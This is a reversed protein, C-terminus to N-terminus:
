NIAAGGINNLTKYCRHDALLKMRFEIFSKVTVTNNHAGYWNLAEALANKGEAETAYTEPCRFRENFEGETLDTLPKEPKTLPPSLKIAEPKLQQNLREPEEGAYFLYLRYGSAQVSSATLRLGIPLTTHAVFEPSMDKDLYDNPMLVRRVLTRDNSDTLTLELLPYNQTTSGRNTVSATLILAGPNASDPHLDSADIGIFEADERPNKARSKKKNAETSFMGDPLRLASLKWSLIGERNFVLAVPDGTDEKGKVTVVFRDFSEYSMTTDTEPASQTPQPINSGSQPKAGHLMLTLSEPTVFADAIQNILAGAMVVRLAAFPDNENVVQSFLRANATAKLNERLAPFNVYSSLTAADKAEAASRMGRVAIYPAFYFWVGFLMFVVAISLKAVNSKLM